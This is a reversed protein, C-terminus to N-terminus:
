MHRGSSQIQMTSSEHLLAYSPRRPLVHICPYQRLSHLQVQLFQKGKDKGGDETPLLVVADRMNTPLTRCLASM